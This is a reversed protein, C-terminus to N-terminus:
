TSLSITKQIEEETPLKEVKWRIIKLGAEKIIEDRIKDKKENHSADDLEIIAIIYFSKNCILYDAVKQRAQAFKGFNNKYSAGKAYLFRSFSVQALIVHDPLAKQLKWYLIQEPETLPKRPFFKSTNKTEHTDQLFNYYNQPTQKQNLKQKFLLASIVVIITLLWLISTLM